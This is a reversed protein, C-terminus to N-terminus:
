HGCSGGVLIALTNIITGLGVMSFDEPFFTSIMIDRLFFIDIGSLFLNPERSLM